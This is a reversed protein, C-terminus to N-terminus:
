GANHGGIQGNRERMTAKERYSTGFLVANKGFKTQVALMAKQLDRERREEEPASFLSLQSGEAPEILSFGLMIRKVSRSRDVQEDYISAATEFLTRFSNTAADLTKAGGGSEHWGDNRAGPGVIRLGHGGDFVQAERLEAAKAASINEYGVHVSVRRAALGKDLMDLASSEVMERLVIRADEFAYGSALVQGNAISKGRPKYAKIDAITCPEQGWAHDILFEANVGFERYLLEESLRTVDFLTRAGHKALRAAIGPGINWIDTIPQHHWMRARFSAEDLEGIFHPDHKALVDLAVKALFLNEGIGATARIGVEREVDDILTQAFQRATMGCASLYSTADIFCEDISYPYIDAPSVRRLYLAYIEASKQMYLRMRPKAKFYEIGEPIEFVRCRNRVGLKKMATSIALCITTRERTPDAVVLKATNPDMGRAVCEVSAYFCKLDICVYTKQELGPM